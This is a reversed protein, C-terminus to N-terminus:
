SPFALGVEFPVQKWEVVTFTKDAMLFIRKGPSDREWFLSLSLSNIGSHGDIGESILSGSHLHPLPTLLCGLPIRAGKNRAQPPATNGLLGSGGIIVHALSM